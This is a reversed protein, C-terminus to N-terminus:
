CAGKFCEDLAKEFDVNFLWDYMAPMDGLEQNGDDAAGPTKPMRRLDMEKNIEITRDIRTQRFSQWGFLAREFEKNSVNPGSGLLRGLVRALLYVDEFAQNVGQGASPPIAHAGDGVIAVRGFGGPIKASTWRELRPIQYFGWISLKDDPLDRVANQVIKPFHESHQRILSRLYEKDANIKSWNPVKPMPRSVAVIVEDAGFMQPAIVFAGYDPVMIVCPLPYANSSANIDACDEEPLELQPTPIVALVAAGGSFVPKIGPALHSRVTSRIGDAGILLSANEVSGDEFQWTVNDETESVIHDLRRNFHIPISREKVATLLEDLVTSRYARMAHYGYREVDGFQIIEMDRKREADLFYLGDFGFGKGLLSDYIGLKDLVKLGNPTLMVGGGINASAERAEYVVCKISQQHLALALALGSLGAGIIAVDINTNGM